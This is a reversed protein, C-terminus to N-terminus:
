IKAIQTRDQVLGIALFMKDLEDIARRLSAYHLLVSGAPTGECPLMGCLARDFEELDIKREKLYEHGWIGAVLYKDFPDSTDRYHELMAKDPEASRDFVRKLAEAKKLEDKKAFSRPRRVLEDLAQVLAADLNLRAFSLSKKVSAQFSKIRAQAEQIANDPNEAKKMDLDKLAMRCAGYSKGVADVYVHVKSLKELFEGQRLPQLITLVAEISREIEEKDM